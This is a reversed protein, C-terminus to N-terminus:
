LGEPSFITGEIVPLNPPLTGISFISVIELAQIVDSASTSPLVAM